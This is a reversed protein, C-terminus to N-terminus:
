RCPNRQSTAQVRWLLLLSLLFVIIGAGALGALWLPHFAGCIQELRDGELINGSLSLSFYRAYGALFLGLMSLFCGLFATGLLSGIKRQGLYFLGAGPLILNLMWARRFDKQPQSQIPLPPPVPSSM